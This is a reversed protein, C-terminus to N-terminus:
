DAEYPGLEMNARILGHWHKYEIPDQPFWPKNEADEQWVTLFFYGRYIHDDAHYTTNFYRAEFKIM